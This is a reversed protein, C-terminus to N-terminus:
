SSEHVTVQNFDGGIVCWQVSLTLKLKPMAYGNLLKQAFYSDVPGRMILYLITPSKKFVKLVVGFNEFM